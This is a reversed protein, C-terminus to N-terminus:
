ARPLGTDLRREVNGSAAAMIGLARLRVADADDRV